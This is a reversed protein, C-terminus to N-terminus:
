LILILWVNARLVVVLLSYKIFLRNTKVYESQSNGWSHRGFNKYLYVTYAQQRLEHRTFRPRGTITVWRTTLNGINWIAESIAVLIESIAPKVRWGLKMQRRREPHDEPFQLICNPRLFSPYCSNRSETIDVDAASIGFDSIEWM